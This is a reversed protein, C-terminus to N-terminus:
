VKKWLMLCPWLCAATGERQWLMLCPWLCASIGERERGVGEVMANLLAVFLCCNGRERGVGEVMANLLAM